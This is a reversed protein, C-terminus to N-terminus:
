VASTQGESTVVSNTVASTHLVSVSVSNTVASSHLLSREVCNSVADTHLVIGDSTLVGREKATSRGTSLAGVGGGFVGETTGEMTESDSTRSSIDGSLTGRGGESNLGASDLTLIPISSSAGSSGSTSEDPRTDVPSTDSESGDVTEGVEGSGDDLTSDTDVTVPDESIASLSM